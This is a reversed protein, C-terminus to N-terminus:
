KNESDMQYYKITDGSSILILNKYLCFYKIGTPLKALVHVSQGRSVTKILNGDKVYLIGSNPDFALETPEEWITDEEKGVPSFVWVEENKFVRLVRCNGTDAVYYCRAQTANLCIGRPKKCAYDGIEWITTLAHDKRRKNEEASKTPNNKGIPDITKIRHAFADCVVLKDEKEDYIMGYPLNWSYTFGIGYGQEGGGSITSVIGNHIKRIAKNTEDTFYFELDNKRRIAMGNVKGIKSEQADGDVYGQDGTGAITVIKKSKREIRKIYFADWIYLSDSVEDYCLYGLQKFENETGVQLIKWGNDSDDLDVIQM